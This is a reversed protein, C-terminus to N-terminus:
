IWYLTKNFSFTESNLYFILKRKHNGSALKTKKRKNYLSFIHILHQLRCKLFFFIANFFSFSFGCSFWMLIARWVELSWPPILFSTWFFIVKFTFVNISWKWLIFSSLIHLSLALNWLGPPHAVTSYTLKHLYKCIFLKALWSTIHQCHLM